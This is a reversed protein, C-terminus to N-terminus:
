PHAIVVHCRAVDSASVWNIPNRGRGFVRTKGKELLPRGLVDCWTEMYASPRIITWDLGSSKVKQEAAYKMPHDPAADKVSVLVFQEAGAERAAQILNHKGDHDITATSQGKTGAFGQIASVVCRTGEVARRVAAPDSIDGKVIEVGAGSL